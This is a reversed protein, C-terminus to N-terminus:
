GEKRKKPKRMRKIEAEHRTVEVRLTEIERKLSETEESTAREAGARAGTAFPGLGMGVLKSVIPGIAQAAVPAVLENLLMFQPLNATELSSLHEPGRNKSPIAFSEAFKQPDIRTKRREAVKFALESARALRDPDAVKPNLRNKAREYYRSKPPPPGAEAGAAARGRYATTPPTDNTFGPEKEERDVIQGCCIGEMMLRLMAGFPLIGLWYQLSSFTTAFKRYRTWNCISLVTCPATSVRVTAIPVRGEEIATPCPPLLASCLCGFFIDLWVMDLFTVSATLKSAAASDNEDPCMVAGLRATLQCNYGPKSALYDLLNDRFACVWQCWEGIHNPLDSLDGPRSPIQNTLEEHCCLFRKYLESDPNLALSTRDDDKDDQDKPKRYVEFVFGECVVTPECQIPAGKPKTAHAHGNQCGCKGKSTSGGGCSCGCGSSTSKTGCTCEGSGVPMLPKVGRTPAEAYRIALIWQEEGAGCDAVPPNQFPGCPQKDREAEKCAKILKCVDVAVPDCVVIDDGCPSLAYGCGVVVGKGCADCTVELGNVVGWGHLQRNHLRQKGRIYSDLRNLDDAALLQGAFFRPRCLCELMGCTSCKQEEPPCSTPSQARYKRYLETASKM